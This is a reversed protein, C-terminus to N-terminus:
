KESRRVGVMGDVIREVAVDGINARIRRVIMEGDGCRSVVVDYLHGYESHGGDVVCATKVAAQVEKRVLDILSSSRILREIECLEAIIEKEKM